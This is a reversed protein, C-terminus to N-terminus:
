CKKSKRPKEQFQIRNEIENQSTCFNNEIEQESQHSNRSTASPIKKESPIKLALHCHNLDPLFSFVNTWPAIPGYCITTFRLVIFSTVLLLILWHLM